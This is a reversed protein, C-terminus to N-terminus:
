VPSLLWRMALYEYGGLGQLYEQVIRYKVRYSYRAM